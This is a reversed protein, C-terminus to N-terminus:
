RLINFSFFNSLFGDKVQSYQYLAAEYNQVEHYLLALALRADQNSDDELKSLELLAIAANPNNSGVAAVAALFYVTSDKINYDELLINYLGYSEEFLGAYIGMYALMATLGKINEDKLSLRQKIKQREQNLLGSIRIISIYHDRLIMPGSSIKDYNYNINKFYLQANQAYEKINLNYNNQNFFLIDVLLDDDVREKLTYIKNRLENNLDNNKAIVIKLAISFIDSDPEDLFPIMAVYDGRAFFMIYEYIKEDFNTDLTINENIENFLNTADKSSLSASLIAFAGAQYNSPDLHYASSFHKFALEYYRLQAYSLALNFHLISHQSYSNALRKFEENALRLRGNIALSIAKALSINVSSLSNSSTLFEETSTVDKIFNSVNAKNIYLSAQRADFVQYPAFYFLLDAQEKLDKMFDKVFKDQAINIDGLESNLAVKIKYLDLIQGQRGDFYRRLRNLMDSYRATKIDVLNLAAASQNYDRNTKMAENLSMRAKDYDGMRAYLLGTPLAAQYSGQAILNEVARTDLGMKAYIKASLYRSDDIYSLNETKRLMQLAEPYLGKYYNILSLYYSFLEYDAENSLYVYALDIYYDFKEKDNLYLACVAANIASVTQHDSSSMSNKFSQMALSYNKQEMQSVGLNYQSLSESYISIQEYIGLAEERQGRLYLANAKQIMDDIKQMEFSISETDDVAQQTNSSQSQPKFVEFPDGSKSYLFFLVLLLLFFIGLMLSLIFIFKKDKFIDAKKSKKPEKSEDKTQEEIDQSMKQMNNSDDRQLVVEEAM